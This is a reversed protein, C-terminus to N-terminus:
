GAWAGLQLDPFLRRLLVTDAAYFDRLEAAIEEPPSRHQLYHAVVWQAVPEPLLRKALHPVRLRVLLAHLAPRRPAGGTNHHTFAPVFTDDVGIFRCVESFLARPRQRLAEFTWVGIQQRPFVALLASLQQGYLGLARHRWLPEWLRRRREEEQDLAQRFTGRERGDRVLHLYGAFARDVPDRLLVVLRCGPYAARLAKATHEAYYLYFPSAEGRAARGAGPRFLELYRTREVVIDHNLAADGPGRFAPSIGAFFHPQKNAPMYVQPHQQLWRYLATTGSKAAGVVLFNPGSDERVMADAAGLQRLAAVAWRREPAMRRTM